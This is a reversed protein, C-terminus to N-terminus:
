PDFGVVVVAVVVGGVGCGKALPRRGEQTSRNQICRAPAGRYVVREILM